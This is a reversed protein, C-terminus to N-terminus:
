EDEPKKPLHQDILARVAVALRGADAAAAAIEAKDSEIVRGLAMASKANGFALSIETSAWGIANVDGRKVAILSREFSDRDYIGM